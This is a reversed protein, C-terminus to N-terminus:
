RPDNKWAHPKLINTAYPKGDLYVTQHRTKEPLPQTPDTESTPDYFQNEAKNDALGHSQNHSLRRWNKIGGFIEGTETTNNYESVKVNNEFESVLNRERFLSNSVVWRAVTAFFPRELTVIAPNSISSELSRPTLDFGLGWFVRIRTAVRQEVIDDKNVHFYEITKGLGLLNKKRLDLKWIISKTTGSCISKHSPPGPMMSMFLWPVTGDKQPYIVIRAARHLVFGALKTRNREGPYIWLDGVKVLM